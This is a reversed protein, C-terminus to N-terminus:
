LVRQTGSEGPRKDIAAEHRREPVIGSGVAGNPASSAGNAAGHAADLLTIKWLPSANAGGNSDADFAYISDHETAVIVISHTTGAQVTGAGMTVGALKVFASRLRVWGCFGFLTASRVQM